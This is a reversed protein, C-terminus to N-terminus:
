CSICSFVLSTCIGQAGWGGLDYSAFRLDRVWLSQLRFGLRQVRVESGLGVLSYAEVGLVSFGVTCILHIPRHLNTVKLISCTTPISNLMLTRPKRTM